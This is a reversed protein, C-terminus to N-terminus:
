VGLLQRYNALTDSNLKYLAGLSKGTEGAIQGYSKGELYHLRVFDRRNSTGLRRTAWELDLLLDDAAESSAGLASMLDDEPMVADYCHYLMDAGHCHDTLTRRCLVRVTACAWAMFDCDFPFRERLVEIATDVAVAQAAADLGDLLDPTARHLYRRATRQWRSLLETWLEDERRALLACVTPQWAQYHAAVGQIYSGVGTYHGQSLCRGLRGSRANRLVIPRIAILLSDSIGPIPARLSEEVSNM